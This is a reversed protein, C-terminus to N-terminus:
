TWANSDSLTRPALPLPPSPPIEAATTGTCLIHDGGDDDLSEHQYHQWPAMTM